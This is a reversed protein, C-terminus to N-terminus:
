FAVIDAFDNEWGRLLSLWPLGCSHCLTSLAGDLATLLSYIYATLCYVIYIYTTLKPLFKIFSIAFFLINEFYECSFVSKTVVLKTNRSKM